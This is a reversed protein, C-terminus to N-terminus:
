CRQGTAVEFAFSFRAGGAPSDTVDLETAYHECIRRAVALGLGLGEPATRSAAGRAFADFIRAREELPVGPGSDDIRLLVAGDSRTSTSIEVQGGPPTYRVANDIVNVIASLLADPDGRVTVDAAEALSVRLTTGRERARPGVVALSRDVLVRLLTASVSSTAIREAHTMELLARVLRSLHQAQELCTGAATEWERLTRPNQLMVELETVLVTLPTRLEHSADLAFRDLQAFGAHLRALLENFAEVLARVEDRGAPVPLRENLHRATIRTASEVVSDLPRLARRACIVAGIIALSLGLPAAILMAQGVEQYGEELIQERTDHNPEAEEALILVVFAVAAFACLSLVTSFAVWIGLKRALGGPIPVTSHMAAPASM